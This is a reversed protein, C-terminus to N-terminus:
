NTPRTQGTLHLALGALGHILILIFAIPIAMGFVIMPIDLTEAQRGILRGLYGSAIKGNLGFLSFWVIPSVFCIVGILRTMALLTGLRGSVRRMEPFLSPDAGTRFACSGGLVGAWVMAFRALEETWVPPQSLLYRAIVQWGAAAIMVLVALIAGWVAVANLSRSVWDLRQAMVRM